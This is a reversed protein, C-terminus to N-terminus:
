IFGCLSTELDVIDLHITSTSSFAPISVFVNLACETRDAEDELALIFPKDKLSIIDRPFQLLAEM